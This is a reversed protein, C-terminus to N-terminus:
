ELYRGVTPVVFCPRQGHLSFLNKESAFLQLLNVKGRARVTLLVSSDAQRPGLMLAQAYLNFGQDDGLSLSSKSDAFHAM